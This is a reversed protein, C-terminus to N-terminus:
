KRPILLFAVIGLFLLMSGLGMSVRDLGIDGLHGIVPDVTSKGLMGILSLASLTTARSTDSIRKNVEQEIIPTQWASFCVVGAVLGITLLPTHLWTLLIYCLGPLLCSCMLLSRTGLIRQFTTSRLVLFLQLGMTAAMLPGFFAIPIGAKQFYPQNYWFISNTMAFAVWRLLSLFALGPQTCITHWAIRVIQTVRAAEKKEQVGTAPAYHSLRLSAVFALLAPAFSAVVALTPSYAGLFSGTLLGLFFSASSASSLLAFADSGQSSRKQPPLSTYILASECGSVSAIAIGGLTEAVAFMWFGHASAFFGMGVLGITRGILMMKAYGIHEAWVSTPIDALLIAGSLIAEMLFMETFNLGRQQEFLVMTTSYFFLDGSFRTIVLWRLLPIRLLERSPVFRWFFSM